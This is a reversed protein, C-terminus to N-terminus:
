EPKEEPSLDPFLGFILYRLATSCFAYPVVLQVTWLPMRVTRTMDGFQISEQVFRVAFLVFYGFIAAMLFAGIRRVLPVFRAPILGDAFRPRLHRGRAAALGLGLFGTQIMAYVSIRQVGPLSSGAVERMFVDCALLAAIMAYLAIAATAETYFLIKLIRGAVQQLM